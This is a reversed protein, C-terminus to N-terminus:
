KIKKSQKRVVNANFRAKQKQENEWTERGVEDIYEYIETRAEQYDLSDVDHGGDVFKPNHKAVEYINDSSQSFWEHQSDPFDDLDFAYIKCKGYGDGKQLVGSKFKREYMLAEHGLITIGSTYHHIYFGHPDIGDPYVFMPQADPDIAQDIKQDGTIKDPNEKKEMFLDIEKDKEKQVDFERNIEWGDPHVSATIQVLDGDILDYEEELEDIYWDLRTFSVSICKISKEEGEEMYKFVAYYCKDGFFWTANRRYADHLWNVDNIIEEDEVDAGRSSSDKDMPKGEKIVDDM